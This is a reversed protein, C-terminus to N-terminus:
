AGAKKKSVRPPNIPPPEKNFRPLETSYRASHQGEPVESRQGLSFPQPHAIRQCVVCAFMCGLWRVCAGGGLFLM